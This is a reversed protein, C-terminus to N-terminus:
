STPKVISIRTRHSRKFTKKKLFFQNHYKEECLATRNHEYIDGRKKNTNREVNYIFSFIHFIDLLIYPIIYCLFFQHIVSSDEFYGGKANIVEKCVRPRREIPKITCDGSITKVM